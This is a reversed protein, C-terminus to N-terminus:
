FFRQKAVKAVEKALGRTAGISEGGFFGIIVKGDVDKEFLVAGTSRDIFKVHAVIKTKGFGPGLIYRKARSGPNFKTVTGTLKISPVESGTPSANENLVQNFLKLEQLQAILEGSLTTLYSEPFKVGEQINFQGVEIIRYRNKQEKGGDKVAMTPIALVALICLLVMIRMKKM